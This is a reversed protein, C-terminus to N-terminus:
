LWCEDHYGQVNVVQQIVCWNFKGKEGEKKESLYGEERSRVPM